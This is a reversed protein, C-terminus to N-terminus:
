ASYFRHFFGVVMFFRMWVSIIWEFHKNTWNSVQLCDIETFANCFAVCFSLLLFFQWAVVSLNVFRMFIFHNSINLQTLYISHWWHKAAIRIAITDTYGGCWFCRNADVRHAICEAINAHSFMCKGNQRVSWTCLWFHATFIHVSAWRISIHCPQPEEDLM